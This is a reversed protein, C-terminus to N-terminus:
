IVGNQTVEIIGGVALADFAFAHHKPPASTVLTPNNLFRKICVYPTISTQETTSFSIYVGEWAYAFRELFGLVPLMKQCMEAYKLAIHAM